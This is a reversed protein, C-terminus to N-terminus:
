DVLRQWHKKVVALAMLSTFLTALAFIYLHYYLLYGTTGIVNLVYLALAIFSSIKKM